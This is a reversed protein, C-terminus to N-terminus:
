VLATGAFTKTAYAKAQPPNTRALALVQLSFGASCLAQVIFDSIIL